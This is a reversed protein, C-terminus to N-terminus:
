LMKKKKFVFISGIVILICVAILIPYSWRYEFEPMYRFNMGYWGVILTLPMFITSIVTLFALNKNQKEDTKTQNLDRLQITFEVLTIVREYLRQIRQTVLRFYRENEEKFFHNENEEFEQCVDIMEAYHLKLDRLDNRIQAIEELVTETNGSFIRNEIDDLQKDYRNLMGADDSILQELFDYLFRELCPNVLKKSQAIKEVTRGALGEDDIFIIGKEDLSFAFQKPPASVKNRDLILFKGTISDYNVEARTSNIHQNNFEWEIGMDFEANHEKWEEGSLVMVFQFDTKKYSSM